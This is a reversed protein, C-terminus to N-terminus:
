DESPGDAVGQAWKDLQAPDNEDLGATMHDFDYLEEGESRAAKGLSFRSLLRKLAPSGCRECKLGAEAAEAERVSPKFLSNKRGCRECRYEYIPM